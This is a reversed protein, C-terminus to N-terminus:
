GISVTIDHMCWDVGRSHMCVNSQHCAMSVSNRVYAVGTNGNLSPHVLRSMQPPPMATFADILFHGAAAMQQLQVGARLPGRADFAGEANFRGGHIVYRLGDNEAQQTLLTKSFNHDMADGSSMLRRADQHKHEKVEVATHLSSGWVRADAALHLIDHSSPKKM